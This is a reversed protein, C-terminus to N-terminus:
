ILKKGAKRLKREKRTNAWMTETLERKSSRKKDKREM